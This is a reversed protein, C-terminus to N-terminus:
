EDNTDVIKVKEEVNGNKDDMGLVDDDSKPEDRNAVSTNEGENVENDEEEASDNHGSLANKIRFIDDADCSILTILFDPLETEDRMIPIIRGEKDQGRDICHKTISQALKMIERNQTFEKNIAFIFRRCKTCVDSVGDGSKWKSGSLLKEKKNFDYEIVDLFINDVWASESPSYLLYFDFEFPTADISKRNGSVQGDSKEPQITEKSYASQDTEAPVSAQEMKARKDKLFQTRKLVKKGKHHELAKICMDIIEKNRETPKQKSLTDVVEIMEHPYNNIVGVLQYKIRKRHKRYGEELVCGMEQLQRDRQSGPAEVHRRFGELLYTLFNRFNLPDSKRKEITIAIKMVHVASQFEDTEYWCNALLAYLDPHKECEHSSLATQLYGIAEQLEGMYRCVQAVRYLTLSTRRMKLCKMGYKKAEHLDNTPAITVGVTRKSKQDLSKSHKDLYLKCLWSYAFWNFNPCIEISKKLYAEAKNWDGELMYIRALKNLVVRDPIENCIADAKEAISMPKQFVLVDKIKLNQIEEKEKVIHGHLKCIYAIYAYTRALIIKEKDDLEEVDIKVAVDTLITLAEKIYGKKDIRSTIENSGGSIRIYAKGLYHRWINVEKKLASNSTKELMEIGQKLRKMAERKEQTTERHCSNQACHLKKQIIDVHKLIDAFNLREIASRCFRMQEEVQDKLASATKEPGERTESHLDIMMIYGQEAFCRAKEIESKDSEYISNLLRTYREEKEKMNMEKCMYILNAIVNLNNPFSRHVKEMEEIAKTKESPTLFMLVAKFNKIVPEICPHCCLLEVDHEGQLYCIQNSDHALYIRLGLHYFGPEYKEAM